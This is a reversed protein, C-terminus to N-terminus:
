LSDEVVADPDVKPRRSTRRPIGRVKRVADRAITWWAFTVAVCSLAGAILAANLTPGVSIGASAFAVAYSAGGILAGFGFGYAAFAILHVSVRLERRLATAVRYAIPIGILLSLGSIVGGILLSMILVIPLIAVNSMYAVGTRDIHSLDSVVAAVVEIALVLVLFSGWARMAGRWFEDRTFAMPEDPTRPIPLAITM